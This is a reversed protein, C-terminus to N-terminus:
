RVIEEDVEDPMREPMERPMEADTRDQMLSRILCRELCREPRRKLCRQASEGSVDDHTSLILEAAEDTMEGRKFPMGDRARM